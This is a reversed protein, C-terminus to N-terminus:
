RGEVVFSIADQLQTMRGLFCSAKAIFMARRVVGANLMGLAHPVFCVSSAVHGQTPAFGPTGHAAAFEGLDGRGLQGAGVACAGIMRYNKDPVDGGGAPVTIEPNHLEGVYRDIDRYRLGLRTLPRGVVADMLGIPSTEDRVRATAVSDLRLCPSRGDDATVLVATAALVDELIPMGRALHSGYKMGLKALSGGGIVAVTRFIGSSVLSAAMVIGVLPGACFDKVDAGSAERCGILEAIAKGLNGGGRQYRDGIAEESCSIVYDVTEAGISAQQLLSRLAVAGTAKTLLNELLVDAFLSADEEHDRRVTGIVRGNALTLPLDGARGDRVAIRRLGDREADTFRPSSAAARTLDDLGDARVSVLNFTDALLLWAYLEEETLIAGHPGTPAADASVTGFWPRPREHLQWPTINGIFAQNPAYGVVDKYPRLGRAVDAAAAPRVRIDRAVKSGHQVLGPVHFLLSSAARLVPGGM